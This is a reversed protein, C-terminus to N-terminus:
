ILSLVINNWRDYESDSVGYENRFEPDDMNLEILDEDDIDFLTNAHVENPKHDKLFMQVLSEGDCKPAQSALWSICLGLGGIVIPAGLAIAGITIIRKVKKTM